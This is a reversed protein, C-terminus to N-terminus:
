KKMWGKYRFDCDDWGEEIHVYTDKIKKEVWDSLIENKRSAEYM